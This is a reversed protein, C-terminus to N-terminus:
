IRHLPKVPTVGGDYPRGCFYCFSTNPIRPHGCYICAASSENRERLFISFQAVAISWRNRKVAFLNKRHLLFKLPPNLEESTGQVEPQAIAEDHIVVAEPNCCMNKLLNNRGANRAFLCCARPNREWLFQLYKNSNNM